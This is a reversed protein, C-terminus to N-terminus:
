PVPAWGPTQADLVPTWGPDQLDNINHWDTAQIDDVASWVLGYGAHATASVGTVLVEISAPNGVTGVFATASVGTVLVEVSVISPGFVLDIPGAAYREQSFVLDVAM